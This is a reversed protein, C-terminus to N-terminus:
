LADMTGIFRREAELTVRFRAWTWVVSRRQEVM